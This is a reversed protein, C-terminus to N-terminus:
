NAKLVDINEVDILLYGDYYVVVEIQLNLVKKVVNMNRCFLPVEIEGNDFIVQVFDKSFLPTEDKIRIFTGTFTNLEARNKEEAELSQLTLKQAVSQLFEKIFLVFSIMGFFMFTAYFTHSHFPITAAILWSSLAIMLHFYM